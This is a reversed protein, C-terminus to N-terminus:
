LWRFWRRGLVESVGEWFPSRISTLNQAYFEGRFGQEVVSKVLPNSDGENVTGVAMM